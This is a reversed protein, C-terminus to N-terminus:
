PGPPWPGWAPRPPPEITWTLNYAVCAGQFHPQTCGQLDLRVRKDTLDQRTRAAVAVTGGPPIQTRVKGCTPVGEPTETRYVAGTDLVTLVIRMSRIPEPGLNKVQFQLAPSFFAPCFPLMLPWQHRLPKFAGPPPPPPTIQPLQAPDPAAGQTWRQHVWCRTGDPLQVFRWDYFIRNGGLLTVTQGPQLITLAPYYIGPGQRCYLRGTIRLTVEIGPTPTRIALVTPQAPPTSPTLEPQATATRTMRPTATPRVTPTATNSPRAARPAPSPGVWWPTGYPTATPSAAPAPGVGGAAQCAALTWVLGALLLLRARWAARGPRERLREGLGKNM